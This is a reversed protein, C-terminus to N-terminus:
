TTKRLTSARAALMRLVWRRRENQNEYAVYRKVTEVDYMCSIGGRILDAQETELLESPPVAELITETNKDTM